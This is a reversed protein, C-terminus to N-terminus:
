QKFNSSRAVWYSERWKDFLPRNIGSPMTSPNIHITASYQKHFTGTLEAIAGGQTQLMHHLEIKKGDPGYPARGKMMRELNTMGKLDVLNPDILDDRQYVKNGKFETSKTWYREYEGTAIGADARGFWQAFKAEVKTNISSVFKSAGSSRVYDALKAGQGQAFDKIKSGHEVCYEAVAAMRPNEVLYAGWAAEATLYARGAVKFAKVGAVTLGVEVGAHILAAEAGETRYTDYVECATWVAMSGAIAACLFQAANNEIANSAAGQAQGIDCKFLTAFIVAAGQGLSSIRAIEESKIRGMDTEGNAVRKFVRAEIKGRMAEAVVEAVVGGVAGGLAASGIHEEGRLAAFAAGRAAGLIGHYMKHLMYDSISSGNEAQLQPWRDAGIKSAMFQAISGVGVNILGDKLLDELKEGGLTARVGICVSEQMANYAVHQMFLSPNSMKGTMSADPIKIDFHAAIGATLGASALKIALGKLFDKDALTRAAKFPNGKNQLQGVTLQTAVSSLLAGMVAKAVLGSGLGVKAALPAAAGQTLITMAIAILAMLAQGPGQMVKRDVKHIEKLFEKVLPGGDIDILDLIEASQGEVLQILTEKSHVRMKGLIQSQAYTRHQENIMSTRSWLAGRSAKVCSYYAENVGLLFSTLGQLTEIDTELCAFTTNTFTANGTQATFSAQSAEFVSGQSTSSGSCENTTRTRFTGKKTTQSQTQVTDHSDTVNINGGANVKIKEAKMRVTQHNVDVGAGQDICADSTHDSGVNTTRTTQTTTTRKKGHHVSISHSILEIPVDIISGLAKMETGLGSHTKVSELTLNEATIIKLINAVHIRAQTSIREYFNGYGTHIREKQSQILIDHLSKIFADQAEIDARIFLPTSTNIGLQGVKITGLLTTSGFEHTLKQTAQPDGKLEKARKARTDWQGVAEPDSEALQKFEAILKPQDRFLYLAEEYTTTDDMIALVNTRVYGGKAKRMEDIMAPPIILRPSLEEVGQDNIYATYFLMPKTVDPLTAAKGSVLAMSVSPADLKCERLYNSANRHLHQLYELDIVTNDDVYGRLLVTQVESRVRELLLDPSLSFITRGTIKRFGDRPHHVVIDNIIPAYFAEAAHDDHWFCARMSYLFQPASANNLLEKLGPTLHINFSHFKGEMLNRFPDAPLIYYPNNTGLILNQGQAVAFLTRSSQVIGEIRTNVDVLTMGGDISSSHPAHVQTGGNLGQTHHYFYVAYALPGWNKGHCFTFPEFNRCIGMQNHDNIRKHGEPLLYKYSYRCMNYVLIFDNRNARTYAKGQEGTMDVVISKLSSNHEHCPKRIEGVVQNVHTDSALTLFELPIASQMIGVRFSDASGVRLEYARKDTGNYTFNVTGLPLSSTLNGSGKLTLREEFNSTSGVFTSPQDTELTTQKASYLARQVVHGRLASQDRVIFQSGNEQFFPLTLLHRGDYVDSYTQGEFTLSVASIYGGLNHSSKPNFFSAFVRRTPDEVLRGIHHGHAAWSDASLAAVCGRELDFKAVRMHLLNEPCLLETMEGAANSNIHLTAQPLFFKFGKDAQISALISVTHTSLPKEKTKDGYLSEWHKEIDTLSYIGHHWLELTGKTRYPNLLQYNTTNGFFIMTQAVQAQPSLLWSSSAIYLKPTIFDVSSKTNGIYLGAIHKAKVIGKNIDITTGSKSQDLYAYDGAVVGIDEVTTDQAFTLRTEKVTGIRGGEGKFTKGTLTVATGGVGDIQGDTNNLEATTITAKGGAFIQGGQNNLYAGSIQADSSAVVKGGTNNFVPTDSQIDTVALVGRNILKLSSALLRKTKLGAYNTFTGTGNLSLDHLMNMPAQNDFAGDVILTFVDGQMDSLAEFVAQNVVRGKVTMPVAQAITGRLITPMLFHIAEGTHAELRSSTAFKSRGIVVHNGYDLVGENNLRKITTKGQASSSAIKVHGENKLRGLTSHTGDTLTISGIDANKITAANSTMNAVNIRGLNLTQGIVPILYNLVNRDLTSFADVRLLQAVITSINTMLALQTDVQEQTIPSRKGLVVLRNGTISALNMFFLANDIILSAPHDIHVTGYNLAANGCLNWRANALINLRGFNHLHGSILDLHGLSQPADGLLMISGLKELRAKLHAIQSGDSIAAGQAQLRVRALACAQFLVIGPTVIKITNQTNTIQNLTIEGNPDLMIAGLGPVTWQILKHQQGPCLIINDSFRHEILNVSDQQVLKYEPKTSQSQDKSYVRLGLSELDGGRISRVVEIKIKDHAGFCASDMAFSSVITMKVYSILVLINIIKRFSFM